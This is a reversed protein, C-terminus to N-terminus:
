RFVAPHIRLHVKPVEVQSAEEEFQTRSFPLLPSPVPNAEAAGVAMVMKEVHHCPYHEAQQQDVVQAEVVPEAAQMEVVKTAEELV